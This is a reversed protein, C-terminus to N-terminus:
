HEDEAALRTKEVRPQVTKASNWYLLFTQSYGNTLPSYLRSLSDHIYEDLLLGPRREFRPSQHINEQTYTLKVKNATAGM